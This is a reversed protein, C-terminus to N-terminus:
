MIAATMVTCRIAIPLLDVIIPAISTVNGCNIAKLLLCMLMEERRRNEESDLVKDSSGSLVDDSEGLDVGRECVGLKVLLERNWEQRGCTAYKQMVLLIMLAVKDRVANFPHSKASLVVEIVSQCLWDVTEVDSHSMSKAFMEVCIQLLM